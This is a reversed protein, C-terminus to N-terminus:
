SQASYIRGRDTLRGGGAYLASYPCGPPSRCYDTFWAFRQVFSLGDLVPLLRRLYSSALAPTPRSHMNGGWAHVDLAGIETIWIPKRYRRHISVLEARLQGVAQPNTFDQYFHLAIFDVRLRRTRAISMFRALWGDGPVAPAPSGLRLGTSALRPWLAAAQAPTMDSQSRSDPENFGLLFRARGSRRDGSLSSISARTVSGPGWIMPVWEVGATGAPAQWSWDYAWAAHVRTLARPDSSLYKASAVGRKSDFRAVRSQSGAVAAVAAMAALATMAAVAAVAAAAAMGALAAVTTLMLASLRRAM